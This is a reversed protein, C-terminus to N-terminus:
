RIAPHKNKSNDRRLRRVHAVWWALLILIATGTVLQGLGALASVRASLQVRKGVQTTGDPTHMVVELPFTGNSRAVVPVVLDFASNASITVLQSGSPFQLKASVLDVVVQLDQGSENKIQLRLKSERGSLTFTLSEPVKVSQRIRRMQARVGAIYNDVEGSTLNDDAAAAVIKAWQAPLVSDQAFMTATSAIETAVSALQDRTVSVDVRTTTPVELETSDANNLPAAGISRLQLQPANDLAIALPKMLAPDQAEGTNTSLVTLRAAIDGQAALIENRQVLLQAAIRYADQVPNDHAGSIEQAYNADSVILGISVSSTANATKVRYPRAYNELSGLNAAAQPLLVVTKVGFDNLLSMGDADVSNRSLWVNRSPIAEGDNIDVIDEGRRLQEAFQSTMESRKASSADFPVFTTTLLEHQVFQARLRTLLDNDAVDNSRELGDLLEPQVQVSIPGARGDLLEALRTLQTRVGNTILTTGNPQLTPPSAISVAIAVPMKPYAFAADFINVFTTLKAVVSNARVIEVDIPYIGPDKITLAIKSARVTTAVVFTLNGGASPLAKAIPIEVQSISALAVSGDVAGIVQDRTTVPSKAVIRILATRDTVATQIQAEDSSRVVFRLNSGQSVNFYQGTLKLDFNQAADAQVVVPAVAFVGSCLAVFSVVSASFRNM